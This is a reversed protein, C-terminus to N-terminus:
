FPVEKSYGETVVRVKKKTSASQGEAMAAAFEAIGELGTTSVDVLGLNRLQRFSRPIPGTIRENDSVNVSELDKLTAFMEDTLEGRLQNWSVDVKRLSECRGLEPPLVWGIRNHQLMLVELKRLGGLDSSIPGTLKNSSLRLDRLKKCGQFIAEHINGELANRQLFLVELKECDALSTPIKGTFANSNLRVDTITRSVAGSFVDPIEGTLNNEFM